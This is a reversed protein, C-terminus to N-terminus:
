ETSDVVKGLDAPQRPTLGRKISAGNYPRAPTLNLLVPM